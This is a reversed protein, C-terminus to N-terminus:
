SGSRVGPKGPVDVLDRAGRVLEHDAVLGVGREALLRAGGDALPEARHEHAHGGRARQDGAVDGVEEGGLRRAEVQGLGRSAAHDRREPAHADWGAHSHARDRVHRQAAALHVLVEVLLLQGLQEVLRREVDRDGVEVLGAEAVEGTHDVGGAHLVRVVHGVGEDLGADLGLGHGALGGLAVSVRM